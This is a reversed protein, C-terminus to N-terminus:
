VSLFAAVKSAPLSKNEEYVISRGEVEELSSQHTESEELNTKVKLNGEPQEAEVSNNVTETIKDLASGEGEPLHLKQLVDNLHGIKDENGTVLTEADMLCRSYSLCLAPIEKNLQEWDFIQSFLVIVSLKNAM